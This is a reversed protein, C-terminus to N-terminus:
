QRSIRQANILRGRPVEIEATLEEVTKGLLPAIMPLSEPTLKTLDVDLKMTYDRRANRCM